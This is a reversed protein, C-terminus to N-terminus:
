LFKKLVYFLVAMMLAKFVLGFMNLNGDMGVLKPVYQGVLNDVKSFNLVLYLVFVLMPTKLETIALDKLNLGTAKVPMQQQPQMQMQQQPQMQMQQQMQQQQQQMQMQQMQQQQMQHDYQDQQDQETDQQQDMNNLINQVLQSNSDNNSDNPNVPLQDIPTSRQQNM